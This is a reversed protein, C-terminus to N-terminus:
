VWKWSGSPGLDGSDVHCCFLFLVCSSSIWWASLVRMIVCGVFVVRCGVLVCCTGVVCLRVYLKKWRWRVCGWSRASWCCVWIVMACVCIGSMRCISHICWLSVSPPLGRRGPRPFLAVCGGGGIRCVGSSFVFVVMSIGSVDSGPMWRMGMSASSSLDLATASSQVRVLCAPGAWVSVGLILMVWLLVGVVMAFLM